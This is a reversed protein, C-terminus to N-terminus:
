CVGAEGGRAVPRRLLGGGGGVCVCVCVCVQHDLSVVSCMYCLFPKWSTTPQQSAKEPEPGRGSPSTLSPKRKHIQKKETAAAKGGEGNRSAGERERRRRDEARQSRM